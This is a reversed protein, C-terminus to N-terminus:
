VRRNQWPNIGDGSWMSLSEQERTLCLKRSHKRWFRVDIEGVRLTIKLLVQARGIVVRLVAVNLANPHSRACDPTSKRYSQSATLSPIKGM